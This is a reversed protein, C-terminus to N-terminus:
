GRFQELINEVDKMIEEETLTTDVKQVKSTGMAKGKFEDFSIEKDYGMIWRQYM